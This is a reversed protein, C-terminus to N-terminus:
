KLHSIPQQEGACGYRRRCGAFGGRIIVQLTVLDLAKQNLLMGRLVENSELKDLHQRFAELSKTHSWPNLGCRKFADTIFQKDNNHDNIEKIADLIFGVVTERPVSIKQGINIPLGSRYIHYKNKV